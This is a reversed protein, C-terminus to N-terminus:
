FIGRSPSLINKKGRTNNTGKRSLESTHLSALTALHFSQVYTSSRFFSSWLDPFQREGLSVFVDDRPSNRFVYHFNHCDQFYLCSAMGFKSLTCLTGVDRSSEINAFKFQLNTHATIALKVSDPMGLSNTSRLSAM